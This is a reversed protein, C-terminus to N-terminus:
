TAERCAPPRYVYDRYSGPNGTEGAEAAHIINVLERATVYHLRYHLGDNYHAHQHRHFAEMPAGLLMAANKELAGHTHVKVVVWEPRGAVTIGCSVWNAFRDPTPPNVAHLSANDLRPVVGWKARHWDLTLPGQVLLLAKEPPRRGVIARPGADHARPRASGATAYYLRNVTRTQAPSPASPLTFDAYCGTEMLVRLEDDVGCWRGDPLSNALAWNGHIFGYSLRGSRDRSLLGHRSDLMDRFRVLSRGLNEATDADHHLHIEVEGLGARCLGALADLYDPAYQEIPFFFTHQPGRGDADTFAAAMRALGAQWDRVRRLGVDPTAKGHLPEFHDAVAFLVDIPGRCQARERRADLTARLYGPLWIDARRPLQM